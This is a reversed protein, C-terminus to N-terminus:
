ISMKITVYQEKFADKTLTRKFKEKQWQMKKDQIRILLLVQYFMVGLTVTANLGELVIM